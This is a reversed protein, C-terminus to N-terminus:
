RPRIGNVSWTSSARARPSTTTRRTPGARARTCSVACACSSAGAGPTTRPDIRGEVAAIRAAAEDTRGDLLLAEAAILKADLREAPPAGDAAIIADAQALAEAARGQRVGLRARIARVSWEYWKSTQRGYAGYAEAARTLADAAREYDGRM